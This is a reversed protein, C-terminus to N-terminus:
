ALKWYYDKFDDPDGSNGEVAAMAINAMERATVFHFRVGSTEAHTLADRCFAAM